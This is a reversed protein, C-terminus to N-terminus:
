GWDDSATVEIGCACTAVHLAELLLDRQLDCRWDNDTVAWLATLIVRIRQWDDREALRTSACSQHDVIDTREAAEPTARM